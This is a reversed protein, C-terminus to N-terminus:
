LKFFVDPDTVIAQAVLHVADDARPTTINVTSQLEVKQEVEQVYAMAILVFSIFQM